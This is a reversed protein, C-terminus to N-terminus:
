SSYFLSKHLNTYPILSPIKLLRNLKLLVLYSILVHAFGTQFSARWVLLMLTMKARNREKPVDGSFLCTKALKRTQREKMSTVDRYKRGGSLEDKYCCPLMSLFTFFCLSTYFGSKMKEWCPTRISDASKVAFVFSEGSFFAKDLLWTTIEGPYDLGIIIYPTLRTRLSFSHM